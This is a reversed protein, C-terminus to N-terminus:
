QDLSTISEIILSMMDSTLGVLRDCVALKKASNKDARSSREISSIM